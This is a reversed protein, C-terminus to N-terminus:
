ALAAQWFVRRLRRLHDRNESCIKRGLVLSCAEVTHRDQDPPQVHWTNNSQGLYAFARASRSIRSRPSSSWMVLM